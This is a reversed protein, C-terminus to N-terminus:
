SYNIIIVKTVIFVSYSVCVHMYKLNGPRVTSWKKHERFFDSELRQLPKRFVFLFLHCYLSLKITYRGITGWDLWWQFYDHWTRLVKTIDGFQATRGAVTSNDPKECFSLMAHTRYQYNSSSSFLISIAVKSEVFGHRASGCMVM